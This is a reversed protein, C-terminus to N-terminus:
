KLQYFSDSVVINTGFTAFHERLSSLILLETDITPVVLGIDNEKCVKELKQSFLNSSVPPLKVSLQNDQCASSNEPNM